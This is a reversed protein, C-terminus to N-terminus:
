FSVQIGGTYIKSQPYGYYDHGISFSNDAGANVEPDMGSYKTFTLINQGSVSITFDSVGLKSLIKDPLTYSFTINKLRVYSGDEILLSSADLEQQRYSVQRVTGDTNEPTWSDNVTALQNVTPLGSELKARNVNMIDNGFSGQFFVSLQFGKYGFTNTIGGFFDPLANGIVTKDYDASITSDPVGDAGGLDKYKYDGVSTNGLTYIVDEESQAIGDYVYGYFQGLPKGVEIIQSNKIVTNSLGALMYDQEGLSKVITTPSSLNFSTSWRFKGDINISNLTFEYGKNSITGINSIVTSFGSSTPVSQPILLDKTTSNYYELTGSIRNELIGFDVGFNLQQKKEWQLDPNAIRSASFGTVKNDGLIYSSSELPSTSSYLPISQNGVVGYSFRLKLQDIFSNEEMFAEESLVWGLSASPFFAFKNNDGFRSSGDYRGSVTLLYKDDYSYNARILYSVLAYSESYNVPNAVNSGSSLDKNTLIDNVFGTVQNRMRYREGQIIEFVGVTNIRSKGIEKYFSLSNTSTITKQNASGVRAIGGNILGNYTGEKPAYFDDRSGQYNFALISKLRLSELINFEGFFNGIASLRQTKNTVLDVLALPNSVGTISPDLAYLDEDTANVGMTPRYALASYMVSAVGANQREGETRIFNSKIESLTINSGINLRKTVEGNVNLRFSNRKFDSNKVIGENETRNISLYYNFTKSGGTASAQFSRFQGTKLIRDLWNTGNGISDMVEPTYWIPDRMALSDSGDYYNVLAMNSTSMYEQANMMDLTNAAKQFGSSINVTVQARGEKGQKTTILVVGNAGRAGYVATASADKLIEISEIDSPNIMSIPSISPGENAGSSNDDPQIPIGDIVYLPENGASLSTTGRIRISVGGGPQSSNQSVMVGAAMGQLAQDLSTKIQRDVDDMKISAVAGTLDSKRVTGYGVVVVEELSEFDPDMSVTISTRGGMAIEQTVYGVFSILLTAEGSVDLSFGGQVDTITGNNTGKELVTAGPLPEGNEDTVKGTITVQAIIADSLQPLQETKEIPYLAITENVRKISLRGQISIESLLDSMSWDDESLHVKVGRLQNKSYAFKFESKSELESILDLLDNSNGSENLQVTIDALYKRQADSETAFAMLLSNCCIFAYIAIKSMRIAIKRLNTRM